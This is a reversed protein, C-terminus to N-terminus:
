GHIFDEKTVIKLAQLEAEYKSRGAMYELVGAKEEFIERQEPTLAEIKQKILKLKEILYDALDAGDQASQFLDKIGCRIGMSDLLAKSKEANKRGAKDADFCITVCAGKLSQAKEATLGSAGGTAIWAKGPMAYAGLLATKESEVLIVDTCKNLQFEGYLCAQYGQAKSFIFSPPIEKSRHLDPGYLIAKANTYKGTKNKYFFLTRGKQGRGLGFAKLHSLPLGLDILGRAFPDRESDCQSAFVQVDAIYKVMKTSKPKRPPKPRVQSRELGGIFKGCAHCYGRGHDGVIQAFGRRAGCEPCRSRKSSYPTNNM